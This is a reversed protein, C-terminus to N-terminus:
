SIQEELLAMELIETSVSTFIEWPLSICSIRILPSHSFLHVFGHLAKDTQPFDAM